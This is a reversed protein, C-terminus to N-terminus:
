EFVEKRVTWEELRDPRLEVGIGPGEPVLMEGDEVTFEPDVIDEHWYRRSASIDGPLTFGPLTALAVNHARGIGSELMGGCWVPLGKDVCLDHIAKSSQFGGVRGPKINIIRCAGLEVALEADGVSHISEDLCIPTELQEQLRAHHLCDDYALPQEIMMLDLGDLLKLKPADELTYASNADAMMPVDPFRERVGALMEVDRGPKIKIKIRAYGQEVFGEVKRHLEEDTPQLGISVGVRVTDRVGGVLDALREGNLKAELDHAAMEVAAKAMRHGRIWSVPDLVRAATEPETDVVTPLILETFLPWATSTTESSYGPTEGAVCESWGEAGDSFLTLLMIRRDHAVGSSIEFPETLRMRVERLEIRDIKVPEKRGTPSFPARTTAKGARSRASRSPRWFTSPTLWM